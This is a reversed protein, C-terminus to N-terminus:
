AVRRARRWIFRVILFLIIILLPYFVFVTGFVFAGVQLSQMIIGDIIGSSDKVQLSDTKPRAQATLLREVSVDQEVSAYLQEEALRREEKIRDIEGQASEYVMLRFSETTRFIGGFTNNAIAMAQSVADGGQAQASVPLSLLVAVFLGTIRMAYIM